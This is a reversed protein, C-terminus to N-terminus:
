SPYDTRVHKRHSTTFRDLAKRGADTIQLRGNKQVFGLDALVDTGSVFRPGDYSLYTSSDQNKVLHFGDVDRAIFFRDAGKSVAIALSRELVFRNLLQRIMERLSSGAQNRIWRSFFALPLDREGGETHFARGIDEMKAGRAEWRVVSLLALLFSAAAHEAADPDFVTEALEYIHLDLDNEQGMASKALTSLAKETSLTLPESGLRDLLLDSDSLSELLLSALQRATIGDQGPGLTRLVFHWFGHLALKLHEREEFRRWLRYTPVLVDPPEYRRGDTFRRTAVPRHLESAGSLADQGQQILSLFLTLSLSRRRDAKAESGVPPEEPRFILEVLSEHESSGIPVPTLALAPYLKRLQGHTMTPTGSLLRDIADGEPDTERLNDDFGKALPVGLDEDLIVLGGRRRGCGFTFWSPRYAAPIWATTAEEAGLEIEADHPGDAPVATSSGFLPRLPNEATLTVSRFANELRRRWEQQERSSGVGDAQAIKAYTWFVWCFFSYYRPHRTEGTMGPLLYRLIRFGSEELGLPARGQHDGLDGPVTWEPLSTM